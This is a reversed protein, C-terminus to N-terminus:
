EELKKKYYPFYVNEDFKKHIEKVSAEFKEKSDDVKAEEALMKEYGEIRLRDLEEHEKELWKEYRHEIEIPLPPFEVQTESEYWAIRRVRDWEDFRRVYVTRQFEFVGRRPIIVEMYFLNKYRSLLCDLMPMTGILVHLWNRAKTLRYALKRLYPNFQQDTGVTEQMDDWVVLPIRNYITIPPKKGGLRFVYRDLKYPILFLNDFVIDWVRMKGEYSEVDDGRRELIRKYTLYSIWLALTSKGMGYPISDSKKKGQAQSTIALFLLYDEDIAKFIWYFLRSREELPPEEIEMM